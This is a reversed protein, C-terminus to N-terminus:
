ISIKATSASGGSCRQSELRITMYRCFGGEGEFVESLVGRDTVEPFNALGAYDRYSSWRYDRLLELALETSAPPSFLKIPNSHLYFPLHGFHADRTIPVAGYRGQFLGGIRGYKRNFYMTYATGLKQMFESIGGPLKQTLLLHYHNPMLVFALIGVMQKRTSPSDGSESPLLRRSPEGQWPAHVLDNMFYLDRVFRLRDSDDSFIERKETGRSYIHYFEGEAFKIKRMDGGRTHLSLRWGM